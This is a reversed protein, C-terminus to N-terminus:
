GAAAVLVRDAKMLIKAGGRVLDAAAAEVPGLLVLHGGPVLARLAESALSRIAEGQLVAGRAAANALPLRDAVDIRTVGEEEPALRLDPHAAVMETEPIMRAIRGAHGAVPGVLLVIGPGEHVGLLAGVRIAEEPDDPTLPEHGGGSDHSARSRAQPPRLDGFGDVIPYRERCNACGLYGALVRRNELRDALLVLGFAPGCRSCVLRDTVLIHM